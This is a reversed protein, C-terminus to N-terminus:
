GRFRAGPKVLPWPLKVALGLCLLGGWFALLLLWAWEPCLDLVPTPPTYGLSLALHGEGAMATIRGDPQDFLIDSRPGPWGLARDLWLTAPHGQPSGPFVRVLLYLRTGPRLRLQGLDWRWEQNDKLEGAELERRIIARAQIGDASLPPGGGSLLALELRGRAEGGYTGFRVGVFSLREEMLTISQGLFRGPLIPLAPTGTHGYTRTWAVPQPENSVAWALVLILALAAAGLALGIRRWPLKAALPWGWALLFGGLYGLIAGAVVDSPYHKALVVRSAGVLCAAALGGAKLWPSTFFRALVGQGVFADTTHGSAMSEYHNDLSMPQWLVPDLFEMFPRPRGLSLKLVRNLFMTVLFQAAMYILAIRVQDRNGTRVAALFLLFYGLYFLWHAQRVLVRVAWPLTGFWRSVYWAQERAWQDAVFWALLFAGAGLSSVLLLHPLPNASPARDTLGPSGAPVPSPGWSKAQDPM